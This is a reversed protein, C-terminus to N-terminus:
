RRVMRVEVVGEHQDASDTGDLAFGNREYFRIARDNGKAVWLYAEGPGFGEDMLRQAIGTGHHEPDVNLAYLQRETPRDEDRGTGFFLFGVPADALTAVWFGRGDDPITGEDYGSGVAQWTAEFNAPELADVVRDAMLGRYTARWIEAHLTSFPGTDSRTPRRIVYDDPIAM